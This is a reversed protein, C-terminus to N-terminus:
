YLPILDLEMKLKKLLRWEPAVCNANGAATLVPQKGLMGGATLFPQKGLMGGATLVPQKGLMRVLLSSPSSEGADWWCHPRAAKGADEGATLVPQKGWCGM